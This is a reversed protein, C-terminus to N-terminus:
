SDATLAFSEEILMVPIQESIPYAVLGDERVLAAEIAASIKDGGRNILEGRQVQANVNRLEDERIPRLRQKTEPCVLMEILEASIM